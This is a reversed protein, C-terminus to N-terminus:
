KAKRGPKKKPTGDVKLGYPASELPPLVPTISDILLEIYHMAKLLDGVGGKERWRTVYKIVNGECYGIGNANIYEIPQIKLKKYHDGGVQKTMSTM